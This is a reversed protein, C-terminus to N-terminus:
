PKQQRIEYAHFFEATKKCSELFERPPISENFQRVFEKKNPVALITVGSNKRSQALGAM